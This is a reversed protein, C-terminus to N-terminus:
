IDRACILSGDWDWDYFDVKCIFGYLIPDELYKTFNHVLFLKKNYSVQVIMDHVIQM